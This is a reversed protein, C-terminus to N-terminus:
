KESWVALENGSPDTFHFRKGGPFEFIEKTITGGTSKVKDRIEVLNEYYLVILAGNVIPEQTLEFGGAVGTESFSTYTPGYDTFAWGFTQTYFEKTKELDTSKFEIYDIPTTKM